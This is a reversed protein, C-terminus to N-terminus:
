RTKRREPQTLTIMRWLTQMWSIQASLLTWDGNLGVYVADLIVLTLCPMFLTYSTMQLPGRAYAALRKANWETCGSADRWARHQM